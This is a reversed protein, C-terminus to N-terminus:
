LRTFKLGQGYSARPLSKAEGPHMPLTINTPRGRWKRRPTPISEIATETWLVAHAV